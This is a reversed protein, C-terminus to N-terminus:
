VLGHPGEVTEMPARGGGAHGGVGRTALMLAYKMRAPEILRQPPWEPPQDM